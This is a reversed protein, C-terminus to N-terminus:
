IRSGSFNASSNAFWLDLFLKQHAEVMSRFSFGGEVRRRGEQGMRAGLARDELLALMNAALAEADEPQCLLGNEGQAVLGPVGGVGTACVPLGCSMAELISNPLSERRSALAFVAAQAYHPRPDACAGAFEVSAEIEPPFQALLNHLAKEEPGEGVLRLRASPMKEAVKAFAKILTAHDKDKALRAVCLVLAEPSPQARPTFFDSDVGNPIFTMTGAPVGRRALAAMGERSNCVIHDCFRWLLWEHQRSPAGGGRCGGVIVPAGCFKGWIRGWINPLATCAVLIDPKLKQLWGGLKLFFLPAAKRGTGMHFLQIGEAEAQADLDTPGTLTLMVPKFIQRDLRAALALTQKQTGGFCLDELLFLLKLPRPEMRRAYENAANKCITEQRCEAKKPM